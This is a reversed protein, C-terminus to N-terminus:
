SSDEKFLPICDWLDPDDSEDAALHWAVMPANPPDVRYQYAHSGQALYQNVSHFVMYATHTEGQARM